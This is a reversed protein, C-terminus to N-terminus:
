IGSDNVKKYLEELEKAEKKAQEIRYEFDGWLWRSLFNWPEYITKDYDDSVSDSWNHVVKAYQCEMYKNLKIKIKKRKIKIKM